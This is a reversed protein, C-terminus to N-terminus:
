WNLVADSLAIMAMMLLLLAIVLLKAILFKGSVTELSKHFIKTLARKAARFARGSGDSGGQGLM